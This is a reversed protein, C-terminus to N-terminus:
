LPVDSTDQAAMPEMCEGCVLSAEPKAWANQGCTPCTYKVKSTGKPRPKEGLAVSQWNLRFATKLLSEAARDFPGGEVIYHTMHQGTRKGGDAGTDSPMLGVEVMKAAWERNHYGTRSPKGCYQQWCHCMEHVLVSLIEKDSLGAFTDPNLALEDTLDGINLRHGFRDNAFYGRSRSKRQLTILCPPLRGGFLQENFWNYASDIATYEHGTIRDNRKSPM